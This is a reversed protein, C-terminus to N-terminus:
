PNAQVDQQHGIGDDLLCERVKREVIQDLQPEIERWKREIMRDVLAEQEILFGTYDSALRRAAKQKETLHM